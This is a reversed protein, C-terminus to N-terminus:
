NTRRVAMITMDDFQPESGCFKRVEESLVDLVEQATQDTLTRSIELLREEGFEELAPNIAESFGDTFIVLLDGV